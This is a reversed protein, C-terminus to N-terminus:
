ERLANFLDPLARVDIGSEDCQGALYILRQLQPEVKEFGPVGALCQEVIRMGEVREAQRAREGNKISGSNAGIWRIFISLADKPEGPVTLATSKVRPATQRPSSKSVAVPSTRPKPAKRPKRRPKGSFVGKVELHDPNICKPNGCTRRLMGPSRKGTGLHYSIQTAQDRWVRGAHTVSVQVQDTEWCGSETRETHALLRQAADGYGHKELWDAPPPSGYTNSAM